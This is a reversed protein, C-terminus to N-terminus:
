VYASLAEWLCSTFKEVSAAQANDAKITATAAGGPATQIILELLFWIDSSFGAASPGSLQKAFFFFKLANPMPGSAIVYIGRQRLSEEIMATTIQVPRMQRQQQQAQPLQSWFGEFQQGSM